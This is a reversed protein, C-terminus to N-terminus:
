GRRESPPIFFDLARPPADPVEAQQPLKRGLAACASRQAEFIDHLRKRAIQAKWHANLAEGLQELFREGARAGEIVELLERVERDPSAEKELKARQERKRQAEAEAEREREAREEEDILHIHALYITMRDFRGYWGDHDGVDARLRRLYDKHTEDKNRPWRLMLRGLEYKWPRLMREFDDRTVAERKFGDDSFHVKPLIAKRYAERAEPAVHDAKLDRLKEKLLLACMAEVLADDTQPGREKPVSMSGGLLSLSVNASQAPTPHNYIIRSM